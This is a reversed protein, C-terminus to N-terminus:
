FSENQIRWMEMQLCTVKNLASQFLWKPIPNPKLQKPPPPPNTKKLETTHIKTQKSYSYLTVVLWLEDFGVLLFYATAKLEFYM